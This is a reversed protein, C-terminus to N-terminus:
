TSRDDILVLQWKEKDIRFEYVVYIGTEKMKLIFKIYDPNDIEIDNIMQKDKNFILKEYKWDSKQMLTKETELTESDFSNVILPFKIRSIQFVSDKSFKYIFKTFDEKDSCKLIKENKLVIKDNKRQCSFLFITFSLILFIKKM